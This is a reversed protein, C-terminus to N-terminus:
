STVEVAGNIRNSVRSHRRIPEYNHKDPLFDKAITQQSHRYSPE